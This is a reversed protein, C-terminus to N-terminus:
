SEGGTIRKLRPFLEDAREIAAGWTMGVDQNSQVVELWGIIAALPKGAVKGVIASIRIGGQARIQYTSGPRGFARLEAQGVICGRSGNSCNGRTYSCNEDGPPIRYRNNPWRNALGRVARALKLADRLKRRHRQRDM